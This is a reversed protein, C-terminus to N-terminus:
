EPLSLVVDKARSQPKVKLNVLKGDRYEGEITTQHPAHLKFSVNWKKPWAPLLYIKDGVSQSVMFQLNTLINNGHDQDPVWDFNPGWMAPFRAETNLHAARGHVLKAAEDRLGLCAAQIGDQCWGKNHHTKRNGFTSQAMALDPQGVGYLRYPFIAYLETNESNSYSSFKEAPRLNLAGKVEAIPVPPLEQLIRTWRSRQAATTLKQPLALLRPLLYKFGAIEPLPNVASHWTELSQSPDFIIKGKADRKQWYNDLFAILPDALPLLTNQAFKEDQTYDYKDLMVAILELSGNWYRTIYSNAPEPAKNSWGYDGNNPLGWFYMTEPFQASNEFGYYTKIRARSLPLADSYLKFWPEMLEFDGAALMPWYALRTNQFWYNSGWRRWDPDVNGKTPSDGPKPEVTFISGNFKIPAGGRGSCANMFRQLVYGQTVIQAEPAGDVFIWSREWFNKWWTEHAKRITKLDKSNDKEVLNNIQSVWEEATSKTKLVTISFAQQKAPHISRLTLDDQKIFGKGSLNAGFTSNLLPDAFQDKLSELNQTSLILNFISRTNRHFWTVQSNSSKVVQDALITPKFDSKNLGTGSHSDDDKGFPREQTRWLEVKAQCTVPTKSDVEFRVVPNNADVWFRITAPQGKLKTQILIIGKQLDLTQQYSENVSLAPDFTVRVKGIKCLRDNEDWADTKSIYFVLNGNEEVWLNTGIDGNGIPMSGASNKSPSDWVVNFKALKDKQGFTNLGSLLIFGLSIILFHIRM